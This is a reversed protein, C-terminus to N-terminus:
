FKLGAPSKKYIENLQSRNKRDNPLMHKLLCINQSLPLARLLHCKPYGNLLSAIHGLYASILDM